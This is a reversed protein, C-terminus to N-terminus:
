LKAVEAPLLEQGSEIALVNQQYREALALFAFLLDLGIARFLSNMQDYAIFTEHTTILAASGPAGAM